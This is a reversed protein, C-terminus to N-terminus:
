LPVWIQVVLLVLGALFGAVWDDGMVGWADHRADVWGVPGAKWIDFLRFLGFALLLGLWGLHGLFVLAIMQGSVEDVVIWGPDEAAVGVAEVAWVGVASVVLVAFVLPLHGAALLAGGLVLGVLSGWTGPAKRAYGAGGVSAIITAVSM